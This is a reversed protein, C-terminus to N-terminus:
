AAKPTVGLDVPLAPNNGWDAWSGDYIRV